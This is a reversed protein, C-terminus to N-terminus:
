NVNDSPEQSYKEQQKAQRDQMEDMSDPLEMLIGLSGLCAVLGGISLFNGNAIWVGVFILACGNLLHLTSKHRAKSETAHTGPQRQLAKAEDWLRDHTTEQNSM